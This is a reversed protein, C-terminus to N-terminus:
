FSLEDLMAKWKMGDSFIVIAGDMECGVIKGERGPRGVGWGYKPQRLYDQVRVKVGILKQCQDKFLKFNILRDISRKLNDLMQDFSKGKISISSTIYGNSTDHVRLSLRYIKEILFLDGTMIYHAGLIRGIEIECKDVCEDLRGNPILEIMNEKSILQVYAPKHKLSLRRLEDTLFRLHDSSVSRNESLINLVALRKVSTKGIGQSQSMVSLVLTFAWLLCIRSIAIKTFYKM